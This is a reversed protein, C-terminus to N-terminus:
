APDAGQIVELSSVVGRGPTASHHRWPIAVTNSRYRRHQEWTSAMLMPAVGTLYRLIPLYRAQQSPPISPAARPNEISLFASAVAGECTIPRAAENEGRDAQRLLRPGALLGHKDPAPSSFTTNM